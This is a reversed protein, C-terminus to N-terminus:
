YWCFCVNELIYKVKKAEEMNRSNVIKNSHTKLWKTTLEKFIAVLRFM